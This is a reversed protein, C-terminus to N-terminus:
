SFLVTQQLNSHGNESLQLEFSDWLEGSLQYTAGRKVPTLCKHSKALTRHLLM